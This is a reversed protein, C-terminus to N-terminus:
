ECVIRQCRCLEGRPRSSRAGVRHRFWEARKLRPDRCSVRLGVEELLSFLTTGRLGLREIDEMAPEYRGSGDIARFVVLHGVLTTRRRQRHNCSAQRRLIELPPGSV